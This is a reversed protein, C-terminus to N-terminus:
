EKYTVFAQTSTVFDVKVISGKKSETIIKNIETKLAEASTAKVLEVRTLNPETRVRITNVIPYMLSVFAVFFLLKNDENEIGLVAFLFGGIILFLM